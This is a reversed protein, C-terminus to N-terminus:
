GHFLIAEGLVKTEHEREKKKELLTLINWTPKKTIEKWNKFFEVTLNKTKKKKAQGRKWQLHISYASHEHGGLNVPQFELGWYSPMLFHPRQSAILDHAWQASMFPILVWILSVGSLKREGEVMCVHWVALFHCDAAQFFDTVLVSAHQCGSILSGAELVSFYM